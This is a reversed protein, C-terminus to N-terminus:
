TWHLRKNYDSWGPTFYDRGIRHGNISMEYLGLASVYVMANKINNKVTFDKRLYPSPSLHLEPDENFSDTDFEIWKAQWDEPALLGMSWTSQKSWTSRRGTKDWVRVKWFCRQRSLLKRGNYVVQNTQNSMVKQSDWLDGHDKKFHSLSSAVLIQYATQKQGREDSKLVWSLRPKRVDLGLPDIHYECRLDDITIQNSVFSSQNEFGTFLLIICLPLIIRLYLEM